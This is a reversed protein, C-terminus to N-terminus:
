SKLSPLYHSSLYKFSPIRKTYYESAIGIRIEEKEKLMHKLAWLPDTLPTATSPNFWSVTVVPLSPNSLNQFKLFLVKIWETVRLEDGFIISSCLSLYLKEKLSLPNEEAKPLLEQNLYLVYNALHSFDSKIYFFLM